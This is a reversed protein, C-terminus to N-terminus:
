SCARHGFRTTVEGVHEVSVRHVVLRKLVVISEEILEEHKLSAALMESSLKLMRPTCPLNCGFDSTHVDNYRPPKPQEPQEEAIILNKETM